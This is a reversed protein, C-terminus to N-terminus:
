LTRRAAANHPSSMNINILPVGTYLTSSGGGPGIMSRFKSRRRRRRYFSRDDHRFGFLMSGHDHGAAGSSQTKLAGAEDALLIVIRPHHERAPIHAGPKQRPGLQDPHADRDGNQREVQRRELRDPHEHGQEM